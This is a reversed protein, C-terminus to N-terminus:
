VRPSDAIRPAEALQEVARRVDAAVEGGVPVEAVVTVQEAAFADRLRALRATMAALLMATAGADLDVRVLQTEEVTRVRTLEALRGREAKLLKGDVYGRRLEGRANFQYVPDAGFFLSCAGDRRFGVVIADVEHPVRLEVRRVLATAERMLDERDQEERAMTTRRVEKATVFEPKEKGSLCPSCLSSLFRLHVGIL